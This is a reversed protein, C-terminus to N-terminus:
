ISEKLTRVVKAPSGVAISNAPIDEKVLSGAGIIANEGITVNKLIICNMGIWVNDGITIDGSGSADAPENNKRKIPDIPHFDYGVFSVRNAILVDNGITVNGGIYVEVQYGLHTNNGIILKPNDTIKAGVITTAGHLTVSNGLEIYASGMVLPIGGVLRLNRGFVNCYSKFIPEYYLTSTLKNWLNIRIIREYKLVDHVFPIYPLNLQRLIKGYRYVAAYFPTDQRRIKILINKIM